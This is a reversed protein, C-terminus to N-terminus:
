QREAAGALYDLFSPRGSATRPLGSTKKENRRSSDRVIISLAVDGGDAAAFRVTVRSNHKLHGEITTGSNIIFTRLEPNKGQITRSVTVRDSSNDVVVGSFFFDAEARSQGFSAGICALSATLMVFSHLRPVIKVM